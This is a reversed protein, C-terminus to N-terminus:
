NCLLGTLSDNLVLCMKVIDDSNSNVTVSVVDNITQSKKSQQCWETSVFPHCELM